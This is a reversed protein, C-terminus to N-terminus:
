SATGVSTRSSRVDVNLSELGAKLAKPLWAGALRTEGSTMKLVLSGAAPGAGAGRQREGAWSRARIRAGGGM